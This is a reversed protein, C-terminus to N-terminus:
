AWSHSTDGVVVKVSQWMCALHTGTSQSISSSLGMRISYMSLLVTGAPSAASLLVLYFFTIGTRTKPYRAPCHLALVPVKGRGSCCNIYYFMWLIMSAQEFETACCHKKHSHLLAMNSSIFNFLAAIQNAAWSYAIETEGWIQSVRNFM